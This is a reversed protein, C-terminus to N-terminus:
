QITYCPGAVMKQQKGKQRPTYIDRRGEGWIRKQLRILVRGKNKNCKKKVLKRYQTDEIQAFHDM